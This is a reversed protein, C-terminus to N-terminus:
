GIWTNLFAEYDRLFTLLLEKVAYLFVFFGFGIQLPQSVIFIQVQPILRNLIGLSISILLGFIVLPTSLKLGLSLISESSKLLLETLSGIQFSGLPLLTYSEILVRIFYHHIDCLVLLLAGSVLLMNSPLSIQGGVNASHFSANTLGISNSIVSGAFELTLFIFKLALALSGGILMEYIICSSVMLPTDIGKPFSAHLLPAIVLALWFSLYVRIRSAVVTESFFPIFFFFSGVRVFTFAHTYYDTLNFYHTM